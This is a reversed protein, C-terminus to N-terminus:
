GADHNSRSLTRRIKQWYSEHQDESQPPNNRAELTAQYDAEATRDPPEAMWKAQIMHVAADQFYQAAAPDGNGAHGTISEKSKHLLHAYVKTEDPTLQDKDHYHNLIESERGTLTKVDRLSLLWETASDASVRGQALERNLEAYNQSKEPVYNVATEFRHEAKERDPAPMASLFAAADFRDNHSVQNDEKGHAGPPPRNNWRNLFQVMASDGDSQRQGGAQQEGTAANAELGEQEKRRLRQSWFDSPEEPQGQAATQGSAQSGDSVTANMTANLGFQTALDTAYQVQPEPAKEPAYSAQKDAVQDRIPSLMHLQMQENLVPEVGMKQFQAESKRQAEWLHSRYRSAEHSDLGSKAHLQELEKKSEESMDSNRATEMLHDVTTERDARNANYKQLYTLSEKYQRQERMHTQWTSEDQPTWTNSAKGSADHSAASSENQDAAAPRYTTPEATASPRAM